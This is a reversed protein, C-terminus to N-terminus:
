ERIERCEVLHEIINTYQTTTAKKTHTSTPTKPPYPLPLNNTKKPPNERGRGWGGKKGVEGGVMGVGM